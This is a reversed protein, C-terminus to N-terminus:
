HDQDRQRTDELFETARYISKRNRVEISSRLRTPTGFGIRDMSKKINFTNEAIQVNSQQGSAPLSVVLEIGNRLNSKFVLVWFNIIILAVKTTVLSYVYPILINETNWDIWRSLMQFSIALFISPNSNANSKSRIKLKRVIRGIFAYCCTSSDVSM